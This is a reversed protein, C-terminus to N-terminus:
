LLFYNQEPVTPLNGVPTPMQTPDQLIHLLKGPTSPWTQPIHASPHLGPFFHRAANMLKHKPRRQEPSRRSILSSPQILAMLSEWM